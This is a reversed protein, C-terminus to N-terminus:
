MASVTWWAPAGAIIGDFDEPFAEAEKFGQRGGTSCGQYYHFSPRTGYFAETIQKGYIVTEHLARLGWNVQSKPNQYAWSADTATSNHGTDTSFVAHGYKM